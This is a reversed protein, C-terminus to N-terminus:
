IDLDRKHWKESDQATHLVASVIVMQNEEDLVFHVMYPFVDLVATRVNDYRVAV